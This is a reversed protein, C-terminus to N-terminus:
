PIPSMKLKHRSINIRKLVRKILNQNYGLSILKPPLIKKDIVLNLIKDVETYTFGLESEDTQGPWLDASPVKNIIREPVNLYRALQRVQTKYLNGIPELDVGGDGYKTFYGLLLESKNSTGLVLARYIQSQDYLVSMRERAIKNGRRLNNAGPFKRFYIEVMPTLDINIAKIKLWKAILNADAVSQKATTKYPLIFGIINKRGLAKAALCAVVSSDLGGSLGLIVKKCGAEKTKQRIFGIIKRTAERVNINLDSIKQKM